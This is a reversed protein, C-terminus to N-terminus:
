KQKRHEKLFSLTTRVFRKEEATLNLYAEIANRDGDQLRSHPISLVPPTIDDTLGCIYDYNVHFTYAIALLAPGSPLRVGLEWQQWTTRATGITKAAEEQSWGRDERLRVLREKMLKGNCTPKTTSKM